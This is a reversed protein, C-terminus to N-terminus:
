LTLGYRAAIELDYELSARRDLARKRLFNQATERCPNEVYHAEAEDEIADALAARLRPSKGASNGVVELAMEISRVWCAFEEQDGSQRWEKIIAAALHNV